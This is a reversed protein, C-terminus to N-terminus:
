PSTSRAAGPRGRRRLPLAPGPQAVSESGAARRAENAFSGSVGDFARWSASPTRRRKACRRSQGRGGRAGRAARRRAARSAGGRGPPRRPSLPPRVHELEAVAGEEAVGEGLREHLELQLATERLRAEERPHNAGLPLPEFLLPFGIAAGEPVEARGASRAVDDVVDDRREALREAVEGELALLRDLRAFPLLVAAPEQVCRVGFRAPRAQAREREVEAGVEVGGGAAAAGIAEARATDGVADQERLALPGAEQGVAELQAEEEAVRGGRSGCRRGARGRSPLSPRACGRGRNRGVGGASEARGRAEGSRGSSVSAARSVWVVTM